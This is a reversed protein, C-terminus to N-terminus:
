EKWGEPPAIVLFGGFINVEPVYADTFPLLAPEQGSGIAIALLDGAGYNEVGVVEGIRKGEADRACLGVLDAQLFEGGALARDKLAARPAFIKRRTLAEAAGRDKVGDLRVVIMDHKLPRAAVINFIKEGSEDCLPKYSAIAMPDATYSKIRVEGRVGQARGFEGLLVRKESM